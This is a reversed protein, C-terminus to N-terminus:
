LEPPAFAVGEPPYSIEHLVRLRPEGTVLTPNGAVLCTLGCSHPKFSLVSLHLELALTHASLLAINTLLGNENSM